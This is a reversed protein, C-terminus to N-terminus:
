LGGTDDPLGGSDDPQCAEPFAACFEDTAKDNHVLLGASGVFYNHNTQVSFNFVPQHVDDVKVSQLRLSNGDRCLVMDGPHLNEAATWESTFFRHRPTCSVQDFGFDLVLVSESEGRYVRTVKRRKVERKDLDYALVEAGVDIEDIPLFGSGASVLTGQVFCGGIDGGVGVVGGSGGYGGDASGCSGKGSTEDLCDDFIPCCHNEIGFVPDGCCKETIM